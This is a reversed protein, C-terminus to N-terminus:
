MMTSKRKENCKVHCNDYNDCNYNGKKKVTEKLLNLIDINKIKTSNSM